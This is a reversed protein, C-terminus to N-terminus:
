KYMSKIAGWSESDNPTGYLCLISTLGTIDFFENDPSYTGRLFGTDPHPGIVLPYDPMAECEVTTFCTYTALLDYGDPFGTNPPWFTISHGTFPDGLEASFNSPYSISSIVFFAHGPDTPTQLQYEVATAYYTDQVLYLRADFMTFPVPDYHLKGAFFIGMTPNQAMLM